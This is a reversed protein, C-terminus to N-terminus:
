IQPRLPYTSQHPRRPVSLRVPNGDTTMPQERPWMTGAASEGTVTSDIGSADAVRPVIVGLGVSLLIWVLLCEEILDTAKAGLMGICTPAAM